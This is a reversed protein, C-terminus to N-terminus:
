QSRGKYSIIRRVLLQRDILAVSEQTNRFLIRPRRITREIEDKLQMRRLTARAEAVIRKKEEATAM